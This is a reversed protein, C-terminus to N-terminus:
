RGFRRRVPTARRARLKRGGIVLAVVTAAAGAAVQPWPAYRALAEKGREASAQAKVKGVETREAARTKLSDLQVKTTEVTERVKAQAQAKVDAKAALAEVTDGLDARIEAIEARLQDPDKAETKDATM